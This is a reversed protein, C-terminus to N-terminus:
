KSWEQIVLGAGSPDTIIAVSGHRIDAQPSMLIKGGLAEVQAVTAAVDEVRIYAAWTNAVGSHHNKILGVRPVDKYKLYQYAHEGSRYEGTQFGILGSYFAKTAMIEDTWIENWLWENIGAKRDAPDGAATQALAFIAGQPDKVVAIRGRGPLEFTKLLVKGESQLTYKIAKDIDPVSMLPIWYASSGNSEHQAIGGIYENDHIILTYGQTLEEFSWGFLSKYFAQSQKLDPTVLDHWIIKGPHNEGDSNFAPVTPLQTSCGPLCFTILLLIACLCAAPSRWFSGQAPHNINTSTKGPM